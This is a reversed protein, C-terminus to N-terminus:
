RLELTLLRIVLLRAMQRRKSLEKKSLLVSAKRFQEASLVAAANHVPTNYRGRAEKSQAFEDFMEKFLDASIYRGDHSEPHEVYRKLFREPDGEVARM